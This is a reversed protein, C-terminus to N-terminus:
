QDLYQNVNDERCLVSDIQNVRLDLRAQIRVNVANDLVVFRFEDDPVARGIVAMEQDRHAFRDVNAIEDAIDFSVTRNPHLLVFVRKIPLFAVSGKGYAFRLHRTHHFVDCFLLFVM